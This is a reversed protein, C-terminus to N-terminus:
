LRAIIGIIKKTSIFETHKKFYNKTKFIFEEELNQDYLYYSKWYDIMSFKKKIEPLITKTMPFKIHEIPSKLIQSHFEILESNNGQIPGCVFFRGENNLLRKITAILEPIKKSYYIAFCSIILDFKNTNGLLDPLNDM